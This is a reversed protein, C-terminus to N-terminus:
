STQEAERFLKAVEIAIHERERSITCVHPVEELWLARKVSSSVGQMIVDASDPSITEDAHSQVALIPCSIAFLNRRSQKILVSLDYASRTPFGTYGLNYRADLMSERGESDSWSIHPILPSALRAFPMLKNQVAMPASIPAAATLEMQEALLLTLVGGMSLGAVSVHSCTKKLEVVHEKAAELWSQWTYNRMDDMHTAHGPLNIGKVTFGMAHLQEGLPRMHAVSGTFGHILLVGHSDGQLFFPQAEPQHFDSEPRKMNM